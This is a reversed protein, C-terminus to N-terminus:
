KTMGRNEGPRSLADTNIPEMARGESPRAMDRQETTRTMPDDGMPLTGYFTIGTFQMDGQGAASLVGQAFDAPNLQEGVANFAGAGAMAFAGASTLGAENIIEFTLVESSGIEARPFIM